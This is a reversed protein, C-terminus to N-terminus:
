HYYSIAVFRNKMFVIHRLLMALFLLAVNCRTPHSTPMHLLHLYIELCSEGYPKQGGWTQDGVAQLRKMLHKPEPSVEIKEPFKSM